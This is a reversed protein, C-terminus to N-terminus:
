RYKAKKWEEAKGKEIAAKSLFTHDEEPITILGKLPDWAHERIANMQLAFRAANQESIGYFHEPLDDPKIDKELYEVIFRIAQISQEVVKSPSDGGGREYIVFGDRFGRKRLEFMWRYIAEQAMGGLPIPIHATGGYPIPSGLHVVRVHKGFSSSVKGFVDKEISLGQSMMHEFDACFKVYGSGIQDLLVEAYNPQFLRFYGELESGPQGSQPTELAICIKNKNIFSLVSSGDIGNDRSENNENYKLTLHEKIYYCAIAANFEAHKTSYADNPHMDGVISMWLSDQTKWMHYGVIHYASIEGLQLFYQGIRSRKWQKYKEEDDEITHHKTQHIKHAMEQKTDNIKKAMEQILTNHKNTEQQRMQGNIYQNLKEGSLGSQEAHKRIESYMDSYEKSKKWREMESLVYKNGEKEENELRKEYEVTIKKIEEEVVDIDSYERPLHRFLEEKAYKSREAFSWFPRGDPGVVQTMHGFPRIEREKMIFQPTSSLHIVIFEIGVKEANKVMSVLNRHSIMWNKREASELSDHEGAMAHLGIRIGLEEKIRKIRYHVDPELFEHITELDIQLTDVGFTAGYGMKRAFGALEGTKAIHWWGPTFGIKYGSESAINIVM